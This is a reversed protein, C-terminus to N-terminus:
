EIAFGYFNGKKVPIFLHDQHVIPTRRLTTMSFSENLRRFPPKTSLVQLQNGAGIYLKDKHRCAGIYLLDDMKLMTAAAKNYHISEGGRLPLTFFELRKSDLLNYHVPVMGLVLILDNEDNLSIPPFFHLRTKLPIKVEHHQAGRIVKARNHVVFVVVSEDGYSCSDKHDAVSTINHRKGKDDILDILAKKGLEYCVYTGYKNREVGLLREGRFYALNKFRESQHNYVVVEIQGNHSLAISSEGGYTKGFATSAHYPVSRRILPIEDKTKTGRMPLFLGGSENRLFALIRDKGAPLMLQLGDDNQFVRPYILRNSLKWHVRGEKIEFNIAYIMGQKLSVWIRGDHLFPRLKLDISKTARLNANTYLDAASLSTLKRLGTTGSGQALERDRYSLKWDVIEKRLMNDIECRVQGKRLSKKVFKQGKIEYRLDVNCTGHLQWALKFWDRGFWAKIPRKLVKEPLHVAFSGISKGDDVILEGKFNPSLYNAEILWGGSVEKCGGQAVLKKDQAMLRWQPSKEKASLKPIVLSFGDPFLVKQRVRKLLDYNKIPTRSATTLTFLLLIIALCLLAVHKARDKHKQQHLRKGIEITITPDKPTEDLLRLLEDGDKPRDAPNIDCCTAILKDFPSYLGEEDVLKHVCRNSIAGIYEHFTAAKGFRHKGTLAYQIVLGFQFIDGAMEHNAGEVLEPAIFLPTGVLANDETFRTVDLERVLGFDSLYARGDEDFLINAPKIDRHVIRSDHLYALAEALDYILQWAQPRNLLNGREIVSDLDGGPLYRQAIFTPNTDFSLDYVPVLNEHRLNALIRAESLFRAKEEQERKQRAVFVKLAVKRNLLDDHALYVDGMGGSGLHDEIIYRSDAGLKDGLALKVHDKAM